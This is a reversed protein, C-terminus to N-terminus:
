VTTGKRSFDRGLFIATLAGCVMLTLAVGKWFAALVQSAHLDEDVINFGFLTAHDTAPFSTGLYILLGVFFFFGGLFFAKM